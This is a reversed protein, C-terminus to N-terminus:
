GELGGVRRHVEVIRFHEKGFEELGGVRRHVFDRM